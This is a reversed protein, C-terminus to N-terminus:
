RARGNGGKALYYVVAGALIVVIIVPTWEM